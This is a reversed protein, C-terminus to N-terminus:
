KMNFKTFITETEGILKFNHDFYTTRYGPKCCMTFDSYPKEDYPIWNVSYGDKTLIVDQIEGNISFLIKDNKIIYFGVYCPHNRGLACM